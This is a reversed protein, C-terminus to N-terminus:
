HYSELRTVRNFLDIIEAMTKSGAACSFVIKDAHLEAQKGSHLYQLYAEGEAHALEKRFVGKGYKKPQNDENWYRGMVIGASSGNSLHLVLVEDGVEPMLYEGTMSFVPFDDTVDDDMDIYTARIMGNKYDISSVKGIRIDKAM